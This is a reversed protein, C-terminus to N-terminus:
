VLFLTNLVLYLLFFQRAARTRATQRGRRRDLTLVKLPQRMLFVAMSAIALALGSWSPAILLGLLVPEVIFGWGGHEAPLAVTRLRVRNKTAPLADIQSSM